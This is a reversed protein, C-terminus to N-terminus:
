AGAGSGSPQRAPSGETRQRSRRESWALVDDLAYVVLRGHKRFRPGRGEVRMRELSRPSLRILTGAEEQTLFRQDATM